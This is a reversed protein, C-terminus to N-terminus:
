RRETNEFDTHPNYHVVIFGGLWKWVGPVQWRVPPVMNKLVIHHCYNILGGINLRQDWLEIEFSSEYTHCFCVYSVKRYKKAKHLM